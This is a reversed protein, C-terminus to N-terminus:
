RLRRCTRTYPTLLGRAKPTSLHWLAPTCLTAKEGSQVQSAEAYSEVERAEAYMERERQDKGTQQTARGQTATSPQLRTSM